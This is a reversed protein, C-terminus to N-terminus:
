KLWDPLYKSKDVEKSMLEKRWEEDQWRQTSVFEYYSYVPGAYTCHDNENDIVIACYQADGTAVHVSQKSNPDTHVDTVSPKWKYDHAYYLKCYWGDYTPPGGCGFFAKEVTKKLFSEESEDLPLSKLEKDAITELTEMSQAVHAFYKM